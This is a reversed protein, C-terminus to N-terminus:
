GKLELPVPNQAHHPHDPGPYVKLKTILRRALRNKPLMGKVALRIIETPKSALMKGATATRLGGPYESHRYYLKEGPKDGTVVIGRANIVVVFDGADVHPTFQPRHKGRLIGAVRSALRGLVQGQADVVYWQRRELAEEKTSQYSKM